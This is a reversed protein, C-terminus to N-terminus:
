LNKGIIIEDLLKKLNKKALSKQSNFSLNVKRSLKNISDVSQFDRKIIDVSEKIFRSRESICLYPFDSMIESICGRDLSIVPIGYSFCEHIILPEAENRYQTPFLLINIENFFKEKDDGYIAGLYQVTSIKKLKTLVYKEVKKDEFPGAIKVDVSVGEEILREVTEFFLSIGKEFSINSLFGIKLRDNFINESLKDSDIFASNSVVRTCKISSYKSMLKKSMGESLTLHISQRGSILCLIRFHIKHQNIYAFSHHHLFIRKKFIRAILIFFTEYIQGLGGSLGVYLVDWKKFSRLSWFSKNIANLGKLIFQIFTFQSKPSINVLYVKTKGNLILSMYQNIKAMGHVPPPLAGVMLVKSAKMKCNINELLLTGNGLM